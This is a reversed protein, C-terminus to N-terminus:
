NDCRKNSAAARPLTLVWNQLALTHTIDGGFRHCPLLPQNSGRLRGSYVKMPLSFSGLGAPLPVNRVEMYLTDASTEQGVTIAGLRTWLDVADLCASMCAPDTVVFVPGDPRYAPLQATRGDPAAHDPRVIWLPDGSAIARELGSITNRFWSTMDASLHSGQSQQASSDRIAALNDRSARWSVTMPAERHRALSGEGWLSEAIQRSWDSSGGGNGRLDLVIAPAARVEAAHTDLYAILERLKQGAPSDPNSNFSPISFWQTGDSLRRVDFEAKRSVPFVYRAYLDETPPRWQLNVDLTRGGARFRCRRIPAVYTDGVDLFMMAGFLERQSALNWRGFRSGLRERGLAIANRGDCSLLRAALPVGSGPETVFVSQEGNGDYRTLFGPWRRVEDPSAGSVGYGLHGDDFSATYEQMAYFYDAFSKAKPARQLARALQADNRAEFGPDAPNVPGPHNAAITDHMAIADTRLAATWDRSGQDAQALLMTLALVLIRM